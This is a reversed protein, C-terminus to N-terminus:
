RSLIDSPFARLPVLCACRMKVGTPGTLTSKDDAASALTPAVLAWGTENVAALYLAEVSPPPLEDSSYVFVLCCAFRRLRSLQDRVSAYAVLRTEDTWQKWHQWADCCALGPMVLMGRRDATEFFADPEFKGELRVTNLGMDRMYTFHQGLWVPDSGHRLFLEPAWGAGRVLLPWGNIRYLRHSAATLESTIERLGVPVQLSAAPSSAAQSTFAFSANQMTASGMQWPWWLLAHLAADSPAHIRLQPFMDATFSVTVSGHAPVHVNSITVTVTDLKVPETLPKRQAPFTASVPAQLTVSASVTGILPQDEANHVECWLELTLLAPETLAASVMPNRVAVMPTNADSSVALLVDRWLGMSGDAPAPAWDIFSISLDTDISSPPLARDMPRFVQVALANPGPMLDVDFDFYRFAGVVASANGIQMGNLWINARYNLGQFTLLARTNSTSSHLFETRHWWSCNAPFMDSPVLQLNDGFFVVDDSSLGATPPPQQFPFPAPNLSLLAGLVTSSASASFWGRADFGVKSIQQPPATVKTADQINWEDLVSAATAAATAM